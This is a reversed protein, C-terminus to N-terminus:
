RRLSADYGAKHEVLARNAMSGPPVIGEELFDPISRLAAASVIWHEGGRKRAKTLIRYLDGNVEDIRGQPHHKRAYGDPTLLENDEGAAFRLVTLAAFLRGSRAYGSEKKEPM